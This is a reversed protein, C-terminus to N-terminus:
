EGIVAGAPAPAAPPEVAHLHSPARNGQTATLMTASAEFVYTLHSNVVRRRKVFGLRKMAIGVETQVARGIRDFTYGMAREAVEHTSLQKSRKTPHLGYWWEAIKNETLSDAVREDTLVDSVAQEEDSLWWREGALYLAVAEAWVQDRDREVAELDIRECRVPWFRRNGTRDVLYGDEANTTAVYVACLPLTVVVRGYPLRIKYNRTTLTAKLTEVDARKISSLEPLEVIWHTSVLMKADKDSVDLTTETTWKGGLVRLLSTKRLGQKGELVLVTDVQCGPQLARAVASILWRQSIRRVHETIDNGRADTLSAGCYDSLFTSARSTGDWKLGRLYDQIPNYSNLRAARMIRAGVETASIALGYARQLWDTVTTELVDTPVGKFPGGTVEVIKEVENWRFTGRTEPAHALIIFVNEGCAKPTDDARMILLRKWDDAKADDSAVASDRAAPKSGAVMRARMAENDEDRRARRESASAFNYRAKELWHELGEPDCVMATISPRLVELAAEETVNGPLTFALLSAAQNITGDRAGVQALPEGKIIRGLLRYREADAPKTSSAKRRRADSLLKRLADLDAPEADDADAWRPPEYEAPNLSSAAALLGDVDLSRGTGTEIVPETGVPCTPLFYLRSLDKCQPDSPLKMTDVAAALVRRWDSAPVPRSLPMVLRYCGPTHTSHLVYEFGGGDITDSVKQLADADLHDLDFVACTVALVSANCRLGDIDVPSWAGCHKASCDKGSCPACDTLTVDSLMEVLEAWTADVVTPANDRNSDYFALKMTNRENTRAPPSMM